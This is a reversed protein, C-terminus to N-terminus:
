RLSHINIIEVGKEHYLEFHSDTTYIEKCGTELFSSLILADLGPMKTEYAIWGARLAMEITVPVVVIAKKIDDIIAKWKDFRNQLLKKQIEYLVIASTVIERNDWISIAIPDEKELEFFFGTDVGTLM